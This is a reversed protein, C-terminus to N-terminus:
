GITLSMNSYNKSKYSYRSDCKFFVLHICVCRNKKKTKGKKKKNLIEM